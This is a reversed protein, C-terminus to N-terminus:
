EGSAYGGNRMRWSSIQEHLVRRNVENDDVILVRVGELFTRPPVVPLPGLPLDFPLAFSFKSGKDPQSTVTINGGMLEVLQKSIALGLGTGGFRRTTSNDAQTFKEFIHDLKDAAIGIGTDEVSFRLEAQSETQRECQISILVHGKSTFKIANGVLNTVVQRVRGPDGIVHRPADPAFRVILDLGKEAVKAALIEGAEEVATQLDFPIPELSLKGAEIKSFDLIDNIINLLSDARSRAIQIFERQRDSLETDHLLGLMGMVGNMPTRIEHSMSALFEGKARASAEAAEKAALL